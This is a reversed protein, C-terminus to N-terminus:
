QDQEKELLTLDRWWMDSLTCEITGTLDFLWRLDFRMAADTVKGNVALAVRILVRTM